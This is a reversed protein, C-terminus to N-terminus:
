PTLLHRHFRWPSTYIRKGEAPPASSGNSSGTLIQHETEALRALTKPSRPGSRTDPRRTNPQQGVGLPATPSGCNQPPFFLGSTRTVPGHSSALHQYRGPQARVPASPSSRTPSASPHFGGLAGAWRKEGARRRASRVGACPVCGDSRLRPM